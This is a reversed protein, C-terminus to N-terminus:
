PTGVGKLAAFAALPGDEDEEGELAARAREPEASGCLPSFPCFGCDSEDPTAPFCREELLRAALALWAGTAAALGAADDRFARETVEGRGSAYAYAGQVAAPTGWTRALKRAVLQYLGLQVDLAPSPAAEDGTRPHPKGSKVDRVLAYAGTADVRDIFGRVHLTREGAAVRLPEEVGFGLEVGVFRRGPEGARDYELFAHVADLLRRREKERVLAGVLPYGSLFAEFAGSAVDDAIRKWAELSGQGAVIAAGHERYLEELARHLLSGFSAPDLERLPPAGAPEDWGLLRHMLFRRPCALLEQLASASIPRDPVTGPVPPFPGERGPVGDAAGLRVPPARLAAIAGLDLAPDGRWAPPLEPAIRAVRDHWDAPSLPAADRAAEAARRAPAFGDRELAAGGPVPEAPAGTIAHPRALAAAAEVFLAAAERETGALDVRPASLAIARRAARVARFFAHVPALARDEVLPLVRGPAARELEVRLPEPLVPDERPSGPVVGEGLGIVRVAEFALGAAGALTGVHVAPAGPRERPVRLARVRAEIAELAGDGALAAGLPGACAPELAERLRPLLATGEGPALLWAELFTSLAPGLAALPAGGRAERALAVLAELAPRIARLNRLTRELARVERASSDDASRARAIAAALEGERAAARGSWALAGAPNGPSGGATGLAHALETAEGHTLHGRPRDGGEPGSDPGPGALRLAPLVRALAEASLHARLASVVALIRAGAALTTAPVAGAVHVPLGLAAIRDAVLAALPDQAPVLVALAALPTRHELVQRAVWDATARLEAEVGAHQELAVTGDPGRSRPRDPAALAEPAAFLHAALIAREPPAGAPPPPRGPGDGAVPGVRPAAPPTAALAAAEEGYLRRVREVWRAKAPRARWVGVVAGPIARVLAARAAGEHGTVAALVPGPWPWLSPDAALRRAAESAMRAFTWSAGAAERARAFVRALDRAAPEAALDRRLDEPEIGADELTGIAGAFAEGWGRTARLLDPGFRELGLDERLLAALRAPRLGEEGPLAPVGAAALVEEAATRLGVFRLGALAGDRGAGALTRRLAHAHRESPVLVTGAPLPGGAPLAAAADAWAELDDLPIARPM